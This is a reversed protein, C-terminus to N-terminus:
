QKLGIRKLSELNSTWEKLVKVKLGLFIQQGLFEEIEKRASQGIEKIKKGGQGIVIGKQSEREVYIV